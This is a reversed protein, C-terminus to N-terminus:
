RLRKKEEERQQRLAQNAITAVFVLTFVLAGIGIKYTWEMGSYVVAFIFVLMLAMVLVEQVRDM